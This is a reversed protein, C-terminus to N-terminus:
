SSIGDWLLRASPNLELPVKAGHIEYFVLGLLDVALFGYVAHRLRFSVPFPFVTTKQGPQLCTLVVLLAYVGASAGFQTGGLNWHVATWALGGLLIAGAFVAIFRRSGLIPELERGAYILGAVTFLIHFPSGTDHLFAHTVLTWLHWDKVGPISLTLLRVTTVGTPELKPSLLILQLVFAALIMSVLWVLSTTSRRPYGVRLYDRASSMPPFISEVGALVLGAFRGLPLPM